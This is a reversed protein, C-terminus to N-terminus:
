AKWYPHKTITYTQCPACEHTSAELDPGIKASAKIITSRRCQNTRSRCSRELAGNVAGCTTSTGYKDNNRGYRFSKCPQRCCAHWHLRHWTAAERLQNNFVFLISLAHSDYMDCSVSLDKRQTVANAWRHTIIAISYKSEKKYSVRSPRDTTWIVQLVHQSGITYTSWLVKSRSCPRTKYRIALPVSSM